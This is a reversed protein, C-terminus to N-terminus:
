NPHNSSTITKSSLNLFGASQQQQSHLHFTTSLCFFFGVCRGATHPISPQSYNDDSTEYRQSKDHPITVDYAIDTDDDYDDAQVLVALTSIGRTEQM